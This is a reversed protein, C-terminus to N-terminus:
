LAYGERVWFLMTNLSYMQGAGNAPDCYEITKGGMARDELKTTVTISHNVNSTTTVGSNQWSVSGSLTATSSSTTRAGRITSFFIYSEKSGYEDLRWRNWTLGEFPVEHIVGKQLDKKRLVIYQEPHPFVTPNTPNSSSLKIIRFRYGRATLLRGVSTRRIHYRRLGSTRRQQSDPIQLQSIQEPFNRSNRDCAQHIDGGNGLAISPYKCYTWVLLQLWMSQIAYTSTGIFGPQQSANALFQALAINAEDCQEQYPNTTTKYFDNSEELFYHAVEFPNMGDITTMNNLNIFVYGSKRMDDFFLINGELESIDSTEDIEFFSGEVIKFFSTNEFSLFGYNLDETLDWTEAWGDENEDDDDDLAGKIYLGITPLISPLEIEYFDASLTEQDCFVSLWHSIKQGQYIEDKLTQYPISNEYYDGSLLEKLTIKFDPHAILFEKLSATLSSLYFDYSQSNSFIIPQNNSLRAKENNLLEKKCGAITLMAFGVL